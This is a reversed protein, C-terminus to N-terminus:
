SAQWTALVAGANADATEFDCALASSSTEYFLQGLAVHAPHELYAKLDDRTDFEFIGCYQPHGPALADYGTGLMIRRGVQYRRISPIDTLALDLAAIVRGRDQDALGARPTFLVLHVIM